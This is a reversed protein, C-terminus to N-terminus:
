YLQIESVNDVQEESKPESDDDKPSDSFMSFMDTSAAPESVPKPDSQVVVPDSPAVYTSATSGNKMSILKELLDKMHILEQASDNSDITIKM